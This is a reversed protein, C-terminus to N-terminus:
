KYRGFTEFINEGYILSVVTVFVFAVTLVLIILPSLLIFPITKLSM